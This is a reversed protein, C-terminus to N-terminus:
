WNIDTTARSFMVPPMPVAARTAKRIARQLWRNVAVWYARREASEATPRTQTPGKEPTSVSVMPQGMNKMREATMATGPSAM